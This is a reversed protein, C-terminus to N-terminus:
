IGLDRINKGNSRRDKESENTSSKINELSSDKTARICKCTDEGGRAQKKM